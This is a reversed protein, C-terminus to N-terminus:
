LTQMLMWGISTKGNVGACRKLGQCGDCGQSCTKIGYTAAVTPNLRLFAFLAMEKTLLGTTHPPKAHAVM